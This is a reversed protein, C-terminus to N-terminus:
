PGRQAVPTGYNYHVYDFDAIGSPGYSFIAIRAGKWQDFRLTVRAGTDTFTKGDLSHGYIATTAKTHGACGSKRAALWRGWTNSM